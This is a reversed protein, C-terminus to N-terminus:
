CIEPNDGHDCVGGPQDVSTEPYAGVSPAAMRLYGHDAAFARVHSRMVSGQADIHSDRAMAPTAFVAAVILGASLIKLM